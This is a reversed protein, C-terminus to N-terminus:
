QECRRHFLVEDADVAASHAAFHNAVSFLLRRLLRVFHSAVVKSFHRQLNRSSHLTRM